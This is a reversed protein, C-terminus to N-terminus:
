EDIDDFISRASTFEPPTHVEGFERSPRDQRSDETKEKIWEKTDNMQKNVAEEVDPLGYVTKLTKLMSTFHDMHDEPDDYNNYEREFKGRVDDLAPLLEAYVKDQIINLEEETFVKRVDEDKLAYLDDGNIAYETLAIVFRKRKDEPLLNYEHIRLVLNVEESYSLYLGPHTISELIAPNAEIYLRVFEKSCRRALFSHIKRKAGWTSLYSTKYKSTTTFEGLRELITPYYKQPIIVAKKIQVDGCTIQDIMKDTSTGIIYIELWEPNNILISSYADGITPHKFRWIPNDDLHVFQVLSGNLANLSQTVGSLSSGLRALATTEIDVLEIPSGLRDNRMYILALAAKSDADLEQIVEQLFREQKDVYEELSSKYLYLGSTFIPDSLRRATEPIFRPHAAIDNLFPKIESRFEKVQKGLKLHNYLIQIKEESSLDHVDIVVHSEQLLPFAGEKLDNRARNYIYDRSTMVIKVGQKLMARVQPWIHNWSNVLDSEYQTVGFADDIWFFQAPDKTNWHKEVKDATDAKITLAGWQDLASMALMSAITTKGAAPEGVLLVFSHKNLAESARKYSNTIVIKSLDERLSALLEKAQDYAREDLIQSLDGLGYLRPVSTRLNRNEHIQQYIWSSGFILTLKVGLSNLKDKIKEAAQGSVGSNTLIIYCECRGAKVLREIKPYEEKLSSVTLTSNTKGSYKCQIVFNGSIVDNGSEKWKGAFAGDKGADNSDLFAEV